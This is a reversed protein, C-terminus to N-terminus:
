SRDGQMEGRERCSARGIKLLSVMSDKCVSIYWNGNTNPLLVKERAAVIMSRDANIEASSTSRLNFLRSRTPTRLVLSYHGFWGLDSSCVDSSWDRSFRTHR